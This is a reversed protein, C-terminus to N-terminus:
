FRLFPPDLFDKPLETDDVHKWSADDFGFDVPFTKLGGFTLFPYTKSFMDPDKGLFYAWFEVLYRVAANKELRKIGKLMDEHFIHEREKDHTFFYTPTLELYWESDVRMWRTRLAYHRYYTFKKGDKNRVKQYVEVVTRGSGAKGSGEVRTQRRHLRFYYLDNAYNYAVKESQLKEDLSRNLLEVFESRKSLDESDAWETSPLPEVAGSDCVDRWTSEELDHFSYIMGSRLVWEDGIGVQEGLASWVHSRDDFATPAVYITDSFSILQLLNSVLTENRPALQVYAGSVDQTAIELLRAHATADFRNKEKHFEIKRSKRRDLDKFYENVWIWYAEGTAPRSRILITPLNGGLWYNLDKEEVTYIFTQDTESTFRRETAKSQVNIRYNSMAGTAAERIEITGDIGADFTSEARFILGMDLCRTQILAIGKEGIIDQEAIKKPESM